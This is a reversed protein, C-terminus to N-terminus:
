PNWAFRKGIISWLKENHPRFFTTLRSMSVSDPPPLQLPNENVVKPFSPLTVRPLGVFDELSHMVSDRDTFYDAVDLVLVNREGFCEIWYQVSKWYISTELGHSSCATFMPAVAHVALSTDVYASFTSLFPLRNAREKGTALVEWKWHSYM